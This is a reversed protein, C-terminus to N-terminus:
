QRNGLLEKQLQRRKRWYFLGSLALWLVALFLDQDPWQAFYVAAVKFGSYFWYIFEVGLLHHLEYFFGATTLLLFKLYLVVSTSLAIARLVPLIHARYLVARNLHTTHMPTLNNYNHNQRSKIILLKAPSHLGRIM